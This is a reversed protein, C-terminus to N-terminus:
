CVVKEFSDEEGPLIKDKISFYIESYSVNSFEMIWEGILDNKECINRTDSLKPEFYINFSSKFSGDFPYKDWIIWHTSNLSRYLIIEGKEYVKIGEAILFIKEGLLYEDRDIKFPGSSQWIRESPTYENKNLEMHNYKEQVLNNLENQNTAFNSEFNSIQQETFDEVIKNEVEQIKTSNEIIIFSSIIISVIVIAIIPIKKMFGLM